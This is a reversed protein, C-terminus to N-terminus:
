ADRPAVGNLHSEMFSAMARFAQDSEPLDLFIWHAHPMAEFVLLRADVGSRLLAQHFLTTQSLMFDRTGAVCLTPPFGTLDSFVPSVAPNFRDNDGIYVSFQDDISGPDAAPRFFSESDGSRSLDATGTFFGFVRPLPHGTRRLRVLLQACLCAGASTGYLGIQEARHDALLACYVALADDVAAPFRHEPALRYRAAVVTMRAYAALPVNETVSGADVTFGGGHLNLLLRDRNNAPIQSPTFIRVPIGAITDLRMKVQHRELQIAGLEDQVRACMARHAELDGPGESDPLHRLAEQAAVSVTRPSPVNKIDCIMAKPITKCRM